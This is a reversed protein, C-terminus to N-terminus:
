GCCYVVPLGLLGPGALLLYAVLIRREWGRVEFSSVGAEAVCFLGLFQSKSCPVLGLQRWSTAM